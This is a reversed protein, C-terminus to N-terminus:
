FTESGPLHCIIVASDETNSLPGVTLLSAPRANDVYDAVSCVLEDHLASADASAQGSDDHEITITITITNM